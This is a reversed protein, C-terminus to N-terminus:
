GRIIVTQTKELYQVLEETELERVADEVENMSVNITTSGQHRGTSDNGSMMNRIIAQRIQGVTLRQGKMNASPSTFFMERLLDALKLVMDRDLQTRGTSIMDMDITGTRPDTAATQTAVQMLRTAEHVDSALVTDALRMKALAQSIRILSELQRPTASITKHSGGTAGRGGANRMALYSQVLVEEAAPSVEPFVNNRAYMIFDRLFRQSILGAPNSLNELRDLAEDDQGNRDEEPYYLSVLHRALRRDADPNPKDLILYILDFRSLLTPPLKINDIVSLKVNYRSEVPNASALICTRANLTAIIGAKTVSVTQQEMAEHLIARTQDSMKDFEDICCIGNDSLVLAGSELVMDRTEPDRVVSATLGVASSGKGSTYIGRPTLKHVYSLLQSKSTGPDGCLLINIDGRQHLDGSSSSNSSPSQSSDDESEPDTDDCHQELVDEGNRQRKAKDSGSGRGSRKQGKRRITGGFLMCLLGRKTDDMEWVSPAFSRVLRDYVGGSSALLRFEQLQRDSFNSGIRRGLGNHGNNAATAFTAADRDGDADYSNVNVMRDEGLDARRFHIADIYTKFISRVVRQKPNTRRPIAKLVGTVEIRDGPRLSDVLEDYAFLSVNHPTEGEPIEDPTEQLRILQKDSFLCRNHIIQMSAKTNCNDCADPEEIKNRDITVDVCAACLECRFFAQKLDPVISSCRIVLGKLSILQGIDEPNLERMRAKQSLNFTRVQLRASLEDRGFTQSYQESVVRDMIPILELPYQILQLYFTRTPAYNRLHSCDLNLVTHGTRHLIHLQKQYYSLESQNTDDEDRGTSNNQLTFNEIFLRFINMCTQVVVTTGWILTDGLHGPDEFPEDGIQHSEDTALESQQSMSSPSYGPYFDPQYAGRIPTMPTAPSATPQSRIHRQLANNVQNYNAGRSVDGRPLINTGSFNSNSQQTRENSSSPTHVVSQAAERIPSQPPPLYNMADILMTEDTEETSEDSM